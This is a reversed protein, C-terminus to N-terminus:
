YCASTEAMLKEYIYAMAIHRNPPIPLCAPNLNGHKRRLPELGKIPVVQLIFAYASCYRHDQNKGHGYSLQTNTWAVVSLLYGAVQNVWREIDSFKDYTTPPQHSWWYM